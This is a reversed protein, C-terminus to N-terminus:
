VVIQFDHPDILSLDQGRAAAALVIRSTSYLSSNRSLILLRM